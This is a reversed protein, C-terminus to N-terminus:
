YSGESLPFPASLSSVTRVSVLGWATHAEAGTSLIGQGTSEKVNGLEGDRLGETCKRLERLCLVM